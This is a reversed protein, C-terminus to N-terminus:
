CTTQGTRAYVRSCRRSQHCEHFCFTLSLSLSLSGYLSRRSGVGALLLCGGCGSVRLDLGAVACRVVRLGVAVLLGLLSWPLLWRLWQWCGLITAVVVGGGALPVGALAVVAFWVLCLVALPAWQLLWSRGAAASCCMTTPCSALM